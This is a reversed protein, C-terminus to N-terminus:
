NASAYIIVDNFDHDCISLSRDLDKFGILYTNQYKLLVSHKQLSPDKEPNLFADTFYAPSTVDVQSGNWGNSYLVFGVTTGASFKGLS